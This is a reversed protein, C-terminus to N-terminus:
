NLRLSPLPAFSGASVKSQHRTKPRAEQLGWHNQPAARPATVRGPRGWPTSGSSELVDGPSAAVTPAAAGRLRVPCLRSSTPLSLEGRGEGGGGGGCELDGKESSFTM